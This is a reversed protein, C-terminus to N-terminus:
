KLDNNENNTSNRRKQRRKKRITEKKNVVSLFKEDDISYVKRLGYYNNRTTKKINITGELLGHQECIAICFYKGGDSFWRIKKRCKKKCVPCRTVMLEADTMVNEKDVYEKSLYEIHDGLFIDCIRNNSNPLNFVDLSKYGDIVDKYIYKMIKATYKADEIARHFSGNEKINLYNVAWELSRQNTDDGYQISFLRQVDIYLFPYKWPIHVNFYEMNKQLESLDQNGYTCIYYDDGCWQIFDSVVEMFCRSKQLDSININTINSIIPHIKKYVAPKVLKEFCGIPNMNEDLKVAGIEIIEFQLFCSGINDSATNNQGQNWELDLVIYNM